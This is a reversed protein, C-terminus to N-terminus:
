TGIRRSRPASKSYPRYPWVNKLMKTSPAVFASPRTWRSSKTGSKSSSPAYRGSFSPSVSIPAILPTVHADTSSTSPTKMPSSHPGSSSHQPQPTSSAASRSALAATATAALTVSEDFGSAHRGSGNQLAVASLSHSM